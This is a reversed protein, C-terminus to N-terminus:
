LVPKVSNKFGGGLRSVAVISFKRIPRVQIEEDMMKASM